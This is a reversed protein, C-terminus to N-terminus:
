MGEFAITEGSKVRVMAKKWNQFKTMGTRTARTPTNRGRVNLTRVEEVKVNFLTEVADRIQIKNAERSVEFLYTNQDERMRNAKETLFLPRRIVHELKM